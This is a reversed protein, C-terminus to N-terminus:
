VGAQNFATKVNKFLIFDQFIIVTKPAGQTLSLFLLGLIHSITELFESIIITVSSSGSV